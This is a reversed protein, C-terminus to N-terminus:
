QWLAYNIGAAVNYETYEDISDTSQKDQYALGVNATLKRSLKFAVDGGIRYVKDTRSMDTEKTRTYQAFLGTSIFSSVRRNLSGSLVTVERDDPSEKYDLDRVELSVRTDLETGTRTYTITMTNNRLVDGSVQVNNPDGTDPDVASSYYDSSSDSIDSVYYARLSSKGSINFLWDLSGSLGNQDSSKDRDINTVGFNLTYTSKPRTGSAVAHYSTSVYDSNLDDEYDVQTYGVDLGVNFTTYMQYAWGATMGYQQNDTDSIEYYYDQFVPNITFNHRGNVPFNINPGFSFINIDQTNDPTDPDISNVSGQTFFDSLQWNLRNVIQEWDAVAGLNFYTQESYSNNVYDSYSLSTSLTAELPGGTQKLSAGLVGRVIWDDEENTSTLRANDTYTVGTGVDSKFELAVAAPSACIAVATVGAIAAVTATRNM